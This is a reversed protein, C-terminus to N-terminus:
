FTHNLTFVLASITMVACAIVVLTPSLWSRGKRVPGTFAFAFLAFALVFLVLAIWEGTTM